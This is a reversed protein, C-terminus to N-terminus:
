GFELNFSFSKKNFFVFFFFFEFFYTLYMQLIFPDVNVKPKLHPVFELRRLGFGTISGNM